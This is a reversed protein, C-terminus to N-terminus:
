KSVLQREGVYRDASRQISVELELTRRPRLHFAPVARQLLMPRKAFVDHNREAFQAPPRIILQSLNADYIAFSECVRGSCVM